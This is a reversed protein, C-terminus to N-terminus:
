SEEYKGYFIGYDCGKVISLKASKHNKTGGWGGVGGM